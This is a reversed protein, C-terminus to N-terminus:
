AETAAFSKVDPALRSLVRATLEPDAKLRELLAVESQQRNKEALEAADWFDSGYANSAKLIAIVEPDSTRYESNQFKAVKPRDEYFRGTAPDFRPAPATVQFMYNRARAHFVVEDARAPRAAQALAAREALPSPSPAAHPDAEPGIAGTRVEVKRAM